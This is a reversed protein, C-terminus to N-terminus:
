SVQLLCECTSVGTPVLVSTPVSSSYKYKFVQIEPPESCVVKPILFQLPVQDYSFGGCYRLNMELLEM